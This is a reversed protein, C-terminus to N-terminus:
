ALADRSRVWMNFDLANSNFSPIDSSFSVVDQFDFSRVNSQAPSGFLPSFRGLDGCGSLGLNFSCLGGLWNSLGDSNWLAESLRTLCVVIRIQSNRLTFM